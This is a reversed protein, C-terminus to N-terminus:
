IKLKYVKALPTILIPEFLEEDYNEFVYMQIFNSKLARDDMLLYAQYNALYCLTFDGNTNLNQETIKLKDQEDYQVVTYKKLLHSRNEIIVEMKNLNINIGNNFYIENNDEIFDHSYYYNFDTKQKGTLIDINSFANVTNYIGLMRFPLYFYVDMTKEPITFRTESIENIFENPDTQDHIELITEFLNKTSEKNEKTEILIRSLNAAETQSSDCLIHSIPFNIAGTNRGGDSLTNKGAYYQIQYGYDWWSIVYDEKSGVKNLEDLVEIESKTISVPLKFEKMKIINPFIVAILCITTFCLKIIRSKYIKSIIVILFSISLLSIPISYMSFRFGSKISFIGFLMLPLSIIFLRKKWVLIAYGVISLIFTILHGYSYLSFEKFSIIKAELVTDTINFYQYKLGNNLIDGRSSVYFQLKNMM